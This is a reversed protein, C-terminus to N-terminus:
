IKLLRKGAASEDLARQLSVVGIKVQAEVNHAMVFLLMLIIAVGFKRM